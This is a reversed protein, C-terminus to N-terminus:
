HMMRCILDFGYMSAASNVRKTVIWLVVDVLYTFHAYKDKCNIISFNALFSNNNKTELCLDVSNGAFVTVFVVQGIDLFVWSNAGYKLTM